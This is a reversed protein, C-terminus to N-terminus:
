QGAPRRTQHRGQPLVVLTHGLYSGFFELTLPALSKVCTLGEPQNANRITGCRVRRPHRFTDSQRGAFRSCELRRGEERYGIRSHTRAEHESTWPKGARLEESNSLILETAPSSPM